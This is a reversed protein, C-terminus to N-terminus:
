KATVVPRSTIAGVHVWMCVCVCVRACLPLYLRIQACACPRTRAWAWDCVSQSPQLLGRVCVHQRM